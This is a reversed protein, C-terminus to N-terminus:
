KKSELEAVKAVLKAITEKQKQEELAQIVAMGGTFVPVVLKGAVKVVKSFDVRM